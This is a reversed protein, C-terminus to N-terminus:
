ETLHLSCLRFHHVRDFKIKNETKLLHDYYYKNYFKCSDKKSCIELGKKFNYYQGSCSHMVANELLQPTQDTNEPM